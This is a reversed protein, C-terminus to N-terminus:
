KTGGTVEGIWLGARSFDIRYTKGAEFVYETGDTGSTTEYTETTYEYNASYSTSSDTMISVSGEGLLTHKGAPILIKSHSGWNVREGDFSYVTCDSNSPMYEMTQIGDVILLTCQEEMPVSVDYVGLDAPAKATICSAALLTIAACFVSFVQKKVNMKKEEMM